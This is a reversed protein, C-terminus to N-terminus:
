SWAIRESPGPGIWLKRAQGDSDLEFRVREGLQGISNGSTLTFRGDADPRIQHFDLAPFAGIPSYLVLSGNIAMVDTEGWINAYRGEYREAQEVQNEPRAFDDCHEIVHNIIQMAGKALNTVPADIANSFLVIGLEHEPDFGFRSQYGQFSGGHGYLRRQDVKWTQLGLCWDSEEGERLWQIRRMERKTEDKLLTIDGYFQAMMFRCLDPVTSSFGTAAAMVHTEIAPLRAREQGPIDRGYGIALNEEIEPTLIPSTHTLHLPQIIHEDVYHEYPMGSAARVIAGLLTYGLNSYKWKEAPTYSQAGEAIHSQIHPLSPFQFDNWHSTSGDRDLGSTHTLLQRITIHETREDHSSVLWPLYTRAREDLHLKGQEALQMIAIATFIKSFSAIRYGSTKSTPQKHELDAFGYAQQFLLTQKYVIGISLGPLREATLKYGLWRDVVRSAATLPATLDM